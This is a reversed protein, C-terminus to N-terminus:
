SEAREVEELDAFRRYWALGEDDVFHFEFPHAYGLLDTLLAALEARESQRDPMEPSYILLDVDSAPTYTGEAVSGFLFVRLGPPAARLEEAM